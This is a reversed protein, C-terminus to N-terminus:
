DEEGAAADDAPLRKLEVEVRGRIIDTLAIRAPGADTELVVDGGDVEVLRGTTAGASTEITVLRTRARMFHKLETLPRDTGPTSVELVYAGPFIDAEDLASGIGRSALAIADLDASGIQDQPLDLIVTVKSRKGAPSVAVSDVVLGAEHAAPSALDAIRSKIDM